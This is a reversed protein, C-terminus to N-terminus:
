FVRSCGLNSGLDALAMDLTLNIKRKRFNVRSVSGKLFRQMGM